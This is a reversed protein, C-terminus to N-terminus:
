LAALMATSELQTILHLSYGGVSIDLFIVVHKLCLVAAAAVTILFIFTFRLKKKASTKDGTLYLFTCLVYSITNM